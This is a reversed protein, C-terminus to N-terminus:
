TRVKEGGEPAVVDERLWSCGGARGGVLQQLLRCALGSHTGNAVVSDRQESDSRAGSPIKTKAFLVPLVPLM